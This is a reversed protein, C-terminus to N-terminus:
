CPDYEIDQNASRQREVAEIPFGRKFHYHLLLRVSVLSVEDSERLM